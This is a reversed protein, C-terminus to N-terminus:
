ETKTLKWVGDETNLNFPLQHELLEKRIITAGWIRSANDSSRPGYARYRLMQFEKAFREQEEKNPLAKEINQQLFAILADRAKSRDEQNTRLDEFEDQELGLWSLVTSVFADQNGTRFEEILSNLFYDNRAIYEDATDDLHLNGKLDMPFICKLEHRTEFYMRRRFRAMQETTDLQEYEKIEKRLQQIQNLRLSLTKIDVDPVYVNVSERDRVRKRGLEQIFETQNLSTLVVHRVADDQINIGNDIVSTTVLVRCSFASQSILENWTESGKSDSSIFVADNIREALTQGDKKSEVFVLWKEHLPTERIRSLLTEHCIDYRMDSPLIYLKRRRRISPFQYYSFPGRSTPVRNTMRNFFIEFPVPAENEYHLILDRVLWPTASMYIRVSNSFMTTVAKLIYGTSESFLSDTCFWHSEDLVVHSYKKQDYGPKMEEIIRGLGQYSVFDICGISTLNHIGVETYQALIEPSEKKLYLRKYQSSLAIRNSVVLMRNGNNKVFPALYELVFTSKGSGTSSDIFVPSRCSWSKFSEELANCVNSDDPTILCFEQNLYDSDFSHIEKTTKKLIDRRLIVKKTNM